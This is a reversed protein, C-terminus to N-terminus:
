SRAQLKAKTTLSQEKVFLYKQRNALYSKSQNKRIAEDISKEEKKVELVKRKKDCQSQYM